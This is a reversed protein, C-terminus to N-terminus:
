AHAPGRYREPEEWPQATGTESWTWRGDTSHAALTRVHMLPPAGEPGIVWLQTAPHSPAHLPVHMAMVARADLDRALVPAASTPDGGGLGNNLYATWRGCDVLLEMTWPAEMPDLADLCERLSASEKLEFTGLDTAARFATLAALVLPFPAEIFNVASGIPSASGGLFIPWSFPPM